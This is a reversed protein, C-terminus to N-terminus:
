PGGAIDALAGRMVADGTAEASEVAHPDAARATTRLQLTWGGVRAIWVGIVSRAGRQWVVFLASRIPQPQAGADASSRARAPQAGPFDSNLQTVAAAFATDLTDSTRKVLLTSADRESEWSCSAADGRASGPPLAISGGVGDRAFDCRMGSQVHRVSVQGNHILEFVGEADAEEIMGYGISGPAATLMEDDSANHSMAHSCAAMLLASALILQRM